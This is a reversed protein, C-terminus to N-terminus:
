NLLSFLSFCAVWVCKLNRSSNHFPFKVFIPNQRILSFDIVLTHINPCKLHIKPCKFLIATNKMMWQKRSLLNIVFKNCIVFNCLINVVQVAWCYPIFFMNDIKPFMQIILPCPIATSPTHKFIKVNM